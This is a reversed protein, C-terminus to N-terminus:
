VMSRLQGEAVFNAGGQSDVTDPWAAVGSKNKTMRCLDGM